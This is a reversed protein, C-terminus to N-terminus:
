RENEDADEIPSGMDFFEKHSPDNDIFPFLGHFINRNEPNFQRTKLKHKVEDPMTHFEKIDNLLSAEDFGEVNKLQLFGLTTMQEYIQQVINEESDKLDVAPLSVMDEERPM